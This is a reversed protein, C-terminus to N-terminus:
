LGKFALFSVM